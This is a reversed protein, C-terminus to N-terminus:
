GKLEQFDSPKCNRSQKLGQQPVQTKKLKIQHKSFRLSIEMKTTTM